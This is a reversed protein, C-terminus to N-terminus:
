PKNDLRHQLGLYTLLETARQSSEKLSKGAILSPMCVNEICSFEPLLQHFQFVFGINSNRFDALANYSMQNVEIDDYIIKGSNPSDLTGLIQLFTTKGAGSDGVISIIEAKNISLDIGKLVRLDGYQKTIGVAEIM